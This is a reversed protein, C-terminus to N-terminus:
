MLGWTSKSYFNIELFPAENESWPEKRVWEFRDFFISYIKKFVIGNEIIKVKGNLVIGKNNNSSYIDIVLSVFPNQKINKFKRTSYDTAIYILNNLFVYSVPVVHPKGNFCTALRCCENTQIFKEEESSFPRM